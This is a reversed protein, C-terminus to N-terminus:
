QLGGVPVAVRGDTIDKIADFAIALAAGVAALSGHDKNILVAAALAEYAGAIKAVVDAQKARYAALQNDFTARDPSAELLTRQHQKDYAFFGDRAANMAVFSARLTKERASAGCGAFVLYLIAAGALVHAGVERAVRKV